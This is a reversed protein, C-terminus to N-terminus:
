PDTMTTPATDVTAGSVNVDSPSSATGIANTVTAQVEVLDNLDLDFLGSDDTLDLMPIICYLNDIVTQTSGDCNTTDTQYVGSKDKIEILYATIDSEADYPETWTIKLGGTASDISTTVTDM